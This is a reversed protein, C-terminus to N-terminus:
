RRVEAAFTSLLQGLLQEQEPTWTDQQCLLRQLFLEAHDSVFGPVDELAGLANEWTEDFTIDMAANWAESAASQREAVVVAGLKYVLPSNTEIDDTTALGGLVDITSAVEALEEIARDRQQTITALAPGTAMLANIAAIGRQSIAEVRGWTKNIEVQRVADGEAAQYEAELRTWLETTYSEIESAPALAAQVQVALATSDIAHDAGDFPLSM